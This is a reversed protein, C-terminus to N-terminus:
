RKLDPHFEFDDDEPNLDDHIRISFNVVAYDALRQFFLLSYQRSEEIIISRILRIYM